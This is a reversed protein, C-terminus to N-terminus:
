RAATDFRCQLSRYAPQTISAVAQRMAESAAAQKRRADPVFPTLEGPKSKSHQQAAAIM